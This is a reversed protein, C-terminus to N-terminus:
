IGILILGSIVLLFIIFFYQFTKTQKINEPHYFYDRINEFTQEIALDINTMSSALSSSGCNVM